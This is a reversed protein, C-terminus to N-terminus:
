LLNQLKQKNIIKISGRSVLVMDESQFYKLMRSVVERASGIYKAIQEQTLAIVDSHNKVMEDLLFVALRKDLSMFLIQEMLWMVDSFRETTAKYSFSEVYINDISLQKFIMPNIVFVESPSECDVHVDFTINKLICSASLICIDNPFIRYLTVEKGEESLIYTRLEGSKVLLVGVCDHDASHISEGKSFSTISTNNLLLEKENPSLNNWIPLNDAIYQKQITTLM